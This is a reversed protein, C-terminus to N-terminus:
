QAQLNKTQEYLEVGIKYCAKANTFLGEEVALVKHSNVYQILYPTISDALGGIVYVNGSITPVRKSLDMVVKRAFDNMSLNSNDFGYPITGSLKDIWGNKIWTAYNTTASGIDLCHAIQPLDEIAFKACACEPTVSVSEIRFSKTVDNVKVTHEGVLMEKIKNKDRGKHNDIPHCIVIRVNESEDVLKHIGVLALIKTDPLAKTKLFNKAADYSEEAAINGVFYKKDEYEVISDDKGLSKELNFTRYSGLCSEFSWKNNETYFKCRSRGIDVGIIKM